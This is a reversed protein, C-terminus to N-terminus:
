TKLQQPHKSIEKESKEGDLKNLCVGESSSVEIGAEARPLVDEDFEKGWPTTM